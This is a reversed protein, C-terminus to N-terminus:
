PLRRQAAEHRLTRTSRPNPQAVREENLKRQLLPL